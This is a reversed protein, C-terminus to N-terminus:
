ELLFYSLFGGINNELKSKEHELLFGLLFGV